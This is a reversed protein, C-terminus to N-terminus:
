RRRPLRAARAPFSTWRIVILYIICTQIQNQPFVAAIMEPFGKLADVVADFVDEDGRNELENKVRFWFKTGDTQEIWLGLIEKPGDPRVDLAVYAAKNRVV